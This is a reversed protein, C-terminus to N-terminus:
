GHREEKHKCIGKNDIIYQPKTNPFRYHDCYAKSFQNSRYDEPNNGWHMCTECQICYKIKTNDTLIERYWHSM